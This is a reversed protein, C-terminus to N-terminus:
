AAQYLEALQISTSHSVLHKRFCHMLALSEKKRLIRMFDKHGDNVVKLLREHAEAVIEHFEDGADKPQLATKSSLTELLSNHMSDQDAFQITWFGLQTEVEKIAATIEEDAKLEVYAQLEQKLKPITGAQIVKLEEPDLNLSEAIESASRMLNAEAVQINIGQLMFDTIEAKAQAILMTHKAQDM